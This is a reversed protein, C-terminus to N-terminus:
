SNADAPFTLRVSGGTSCRIRGAVGSSTAVLPRRKPNVIPQIGIQAVLGNIRTVLKRMVAVLAVRRPKGRERLQKFFPALVPNIRSAHFAAMFLARRAHVRGGRISRKGVMTGSDWNFPALGALAAIQRRNLTGLEPLEAILQMASVVGVGEVSVMAEFRPALTKSLLIQQIAQSALANAQAQLMVVMEQAQKALATQRMAEIQNKQIRMADIVQQRRRVIERVAEVEPDPPRSPPPTLVAGYKALIRADIKDTKAKKGTARAFQRVRSAQVISVIEKRAQLYDVLARGYSGSECVFRRQAGPIRTERFIEAHGAAINRVRLWKRRVAVDLWEKGIDVGIWVIKRDTKM